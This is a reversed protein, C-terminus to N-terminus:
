AGVAACAERLRPRVPVAAGVGSVAFARLVLSGTAVVSLGPRVLCTEELARLGACSLYGVRTLDVVLKDGAGCAASLVARFDGVSALDIEGAATVLVVDGDRVTTLLTLGNAGRCSAM